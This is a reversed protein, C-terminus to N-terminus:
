GNIRKKKEAVHFERNAFTLTIIKVMKFKCRMNRKKKM